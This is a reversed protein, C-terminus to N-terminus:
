HSTDVSKLLWGDPDLQVSLPKSQLPIRFIQEAESVRFRRTIRETGLDFFIAAAVDFLGSSQKQRVTVEAQGTAENWRWIFAFEPWGPQHLWQRFFTELPVGGASEMVRRLDESSANRGKYLRYYRRIGSFFDEDGLTGRLMHLIWAGKRYNIVNLKKMVDTEAPYIVPASRAHGSKLLEAAHGAMIQKLAAPGERHENFLADFYTAFGESLWLHDWDSQTVSDGFWQHAIEHIVPDETTGAGKLDEQFQSEAYFIASANEMGGYHTTAQVQALKEYPFPGIRSSFYKIASATERFKMAAVPADQPYAYWVLQAGNVNKQRAVSFEAAGIV